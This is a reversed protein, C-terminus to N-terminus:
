LQSPCGCSGGGGCGAEQTTHARAQRRSKRKPNPANSNESLYFSQLLAVAKDGHVGGICTLTGLDTNEGAINLVSGCGGFRDNGCGYYVKGFRLLLLAAACM